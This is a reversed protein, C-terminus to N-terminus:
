RYRYRYLHPSTPYGLQYWSSTASSQVRLVLFSTALMAAARQLAPLSQAFSSYGNMKAKKVM